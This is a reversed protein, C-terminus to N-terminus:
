FNMCVYACTFTSVSKAFPVTCMLCVDFQFSRCSSILSYIAVRNLDWCGNGGGRCGAERGEGAQKEGM